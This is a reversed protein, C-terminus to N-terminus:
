QMRKMASMVKHMTGDLWPTGLKMPTAVKCQVQEDPPTPRTM